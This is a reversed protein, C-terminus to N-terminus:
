LECDEPDDVIQLDTRIPLRDDEAEDAEVVTLELEYDDPEIGADESLTATFGLVGDSDSTGTAESAFAGNQTPDPEFTLRHETEPETGEAQVEIEDGLEACAPTLSLLVGDTADLDEGAQSEVDETEELGQDTETPDAAEDDPACGAAALTAAALGVLLRTTTATRTRGTRM